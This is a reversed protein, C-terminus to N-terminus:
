IEDKKDSLLPQFEKKDKGGKIGKFFLMFKDKFGSFHSKKIEYMINEKKDNCFKDYELFSEIKKIEEQLNAVINKYKNLSKKINSRIEEVFNKSSGELQTLYELLYKRENQKLFSDISKDSNQIKDIFLIPGKIFSPENDENLMTFPHFYYELFEADKTSYKYYKDNQGDEKLVAFLEFIEDKMKEVYDVNNKNLGIFITLERM